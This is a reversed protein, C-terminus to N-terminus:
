NKIEGWDHIKSKFVVKNKKEERIKDNKIFLPKALYPFKEFISIDYSKSIFPYLTLFFDYSMKGDRDKNFVNMFSENAYEVEEKYFLEVKESINEKVKEFFESELINETEPHKLYDEVTLEKIVDSESKYEEDSSYDSM